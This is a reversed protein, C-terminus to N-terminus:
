NMYKYYVDMSIENGLVMIDELKLVVIDGRAINLVSISGTTTTDLNNLAVTKIKENNIYLVL